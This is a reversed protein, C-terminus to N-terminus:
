VHFEGLKAIENRLHYALSEYTDASGSLYAREYASKAIEDRRELTRRHAEDLREALISLAELGGEIQDFVRGIETM